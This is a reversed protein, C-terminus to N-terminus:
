HEGIMQYVFDGLSSWLLEKIDSSETYTIVEKTNVKSIKELLHGKGRRNIYDECYQIKAEAIGGSRIPMYVKDCCELVEIIKGCGNGADIVIYQYEGCDQMYRIFRELEGAELESIDESIQLPPLCDINDSFSYLLSKIMNIPAESQRFYYFIDSLGKDFDIGLFWNLATYEEFCMYLVRSNEKKAYIQMLILSISTKLCRSIPSFIGVTYTGHRENIFLPDIKQEGYALLAIKLIKEVSSFKYVYILGERAETEGESICIHPVERIKIVEDAAEDDFLILAANHNKIYDKFMEIDTFGICNFPNSDKRNVYEAFMEVYSTDSCILILNKNKM